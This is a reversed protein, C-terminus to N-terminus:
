LLSNSGAQQRAMAHHGSYNKLDRGCRSFHPSGRGRQRRHCSSDGSHIHSCLEERFLPWRRKRQLGHKRTSRRLASLEVVFDATLGGHHHRSLSSSASSAQRDRRRHPPHTSSRSRGKEPWSPASQTQSVAGRQMIPPSQPSGSSMWALPVESEAIEHRCPPSIVVESSSAM